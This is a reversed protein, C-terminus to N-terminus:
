WRLLVREVRGLERLNHRLDLLLLSLLGDHRLLNLLVL